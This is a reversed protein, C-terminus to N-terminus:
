LDDLLGLSAFSGSVNSMVSTNPKTENRAVVDYDGVVSKLLHTPCYAFIKVLLYVFMLFVSLFLDSGPFKTNSAWFLRWFQRGGWMGSDREHWVVLTMFGLTILVVAATTQAGRGRKTM